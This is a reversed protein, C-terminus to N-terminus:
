GKIGAKVLDHIHVAGVIDGDHVVVLNTISYKEMVELAQIAMARPEITKPNTNVFDAACQEFVAPGVNCARRLDGDTIVGVFANQEDRVICFGLKKSSITYMIDTFPANVGVFPLTDGKHMIADVTLLLKRGLAGAPHFRAFDAKDFGRASSVAVALAHGLAMTVTSSTTPALNLPCSEREFPIQVVIDAYGCLPGNNCCLLATRVGQLRLSSLVYEFEIGTASKSIVIVLDQQQVLGLDGHLADCGHLGVASVGVGCFTGVLKQAILWSKGIGSFVIKGTTAMLADLLVVASEPMDRELLAMAGVEQAVADRLARMKEQSFGLARQGELIKIELTQMFFGKLAKM